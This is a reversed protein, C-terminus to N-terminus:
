SGGGSFAIKGASISISTDLNVSSSSACTITFWCRWWCPARHFPSDLSNALLSRTAAGRPATQALAGLRWHRPRDGLRFLSVCLRAAYAHRLRAGHVTRGARSPRCRSQGLCLWDCLDRRRRSGHVVGAWHGRFFLLGVGRWVHRNAVPRRWRWTKFLRTREAAAAAFVAVRPNIAAWIVTFPVDNFRLDRDGRLAADARRSLASLFRLSHGLALRNTRQRHDAIKRAPSLVSGHSRNKGFMGKLTRGDKLHLVEVRAWDNENPPPVPMDLRGQLWGEALYVFHNYLSHQLLRGGSAGLYAGLFVVYIVVLGWRSAFLREFRNM